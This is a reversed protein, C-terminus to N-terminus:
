IAVSTIKCEAKIKQIDATNLIKKKALEAALKEFFEWNQSLIERAKRYYKEVEAAVVQEQRSMLDDSDDFGRSHLSFGCSCEGAVMDRVYDFAMDLDRTNGSDSIGFKQEIAAMGGLTSVVVKKRHSQLKGYSDDYFKTFGGQRGLRNYASVLTVSEPTLVETIVAHGAEHYVIQSTLCDPNNLNACWDENDSKFSEAPVKFITRMCAEIFHDMTINESREFGAYLGAENIVTELEACTCGNLIREISKADLETSFPKGKIYHEIIAVADEGIPSKVKIIRDFRGVRLLSDPLNRINNATALIFVEKDKVEDICSQVTVYEEADKHREDGNAFKDMDDLFVISPANEVAKNFTQKIHKVFDGNPKNKRCVFYKCGSAKIMCCAMLTKGVGPEGHLLLGRPASVGLKAYVEGNKLIDAVQELEKKITPYGIIRDFEKMSM